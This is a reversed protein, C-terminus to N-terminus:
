AWPRPHPNSRRAQLMNAFLRTPLGRGLLGALGDQQLVHRAADAYSTSAASTQRTTKVVRISNSLVDSVQPVCM